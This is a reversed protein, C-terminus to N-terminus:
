NEEEQTKYFVILDLIVEYEEGCNPCYYYERYEEQKIEFESSCEQCEIKVKTPQTVTYDISKSYYTM